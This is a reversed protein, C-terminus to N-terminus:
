RAPEVPTVPRQQHEVYERWGAYLARIVRDAQEVWATRQENM